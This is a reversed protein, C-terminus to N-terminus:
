LLVIMGFKHDAVLFFIEDVDVGRFFILGGHVVISIVIFFLGNYILRAVLLKLPCEGPLIFLITARNLVFQRVLILVQQSIFNAQCALLRHPM